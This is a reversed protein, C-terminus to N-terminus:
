ILNRVQEPTLSRDRCYGEIFGIVEYAVQCREADADARAVDFLPLSTCHGRFECTPCHSNYLAEDRRLSAEYASSILIDEFSSQLLNGLAKGPEYADMVQFLTGDTNVLLAWEGNRRRDYGRQVSGTLRRHVVDLYERFPDVAVRSPRVAWHVFLRELAQVVAADTIAFPADPTNLPASFLPLFRVNIGLSEYFDYIDTVADATHGGLVVIAGFPIGRERLRDMNAAVRDETQRGAADLRVGGAVDMSVGLRVDERQLVDLMEDSVSYLNTQLANFYEGRALAAEGFIRRQLKMVDRVYEAPLLLPEGGHWIIRSQFPPGLEALRHEHYWRVSLLIREWGDLSIRERKTLENWEYCYRCRLNCLKSAKIVWNIARSLFDEM